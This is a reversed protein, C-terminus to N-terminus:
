SLVEIRHCRGTGVAACLEDDVFRNVFGATIGSELGEAPAVFSVAVGGSPTLIGVRTLEHIVNKRAEPAALDMKDVAIGEVSSRSLGFALVAAGSESRAKALATANGLARFLNGGSAEKRVSGVAQTLCAAQLKANAEKRITTDGEGKLNFNGIEHLEGLADYTVLIVTPKDDLGLREDEFVKKDAATVRQMASVFAPSAKDTLVVLTTGGGQTGTPCACDPSPATCPRQETACAGLVVTAGLALPMLKGAVTRFSLMKPVM